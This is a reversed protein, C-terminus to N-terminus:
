LLTYGEMIQGAFKEDANFKVWYEHTKEKVRRLYDANDTDVYLGHSEWHAYDGMVRLIAREFCVSQRWDMELYDWGLARATQGAVWDNVEQENWEHEVALYDQEDLVLETEIAALTELEDQTLTDPRVYLGGYEDKRKDCTSIREFTRVNATTRLSTENREWTGVDLADTTFWFQLSDGGERWQFSSVDIM